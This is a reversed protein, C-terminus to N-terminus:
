PEYVPFLYQADETYSKVFRYIPVNPCCIAIGDRVPTQVCSLLCQSFTESKRGLQEMERQAKLHCREERTLEYYKEKGYEEEEMGFANGFANVFANSEDYEETEEPEDENYDCDHDTDANDTNAKNHKMYSSVNKIIKELAGHLTGAAGKDTRHETEPKDPDDDPINGHGDGGTQM